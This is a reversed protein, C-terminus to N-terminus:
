KSRPKQSELNAAWEALKKGENWWLKYMIEEFTYKELDILEINLIEAIFLDILFGPVGTKESAPSQLTEQKKMM